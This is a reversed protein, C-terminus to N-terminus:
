VSDYIIILIKLKQIKFHSCIIFSSRVNTDDHNVSCSGFLDKTKDIILQQTDRLGIQKM